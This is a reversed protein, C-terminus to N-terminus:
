RRNGRSEVNLWWTETNSARVNLAMRFEVSVM